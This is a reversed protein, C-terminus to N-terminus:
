EGQKVAHAILVDLPIIELAKKHTSALKVPPAIGADYAEKWRGACLCWQDGPKLGPFGYRPFPTKLDNGCSASYNLFDETMIACVVHVGRDEPGTECSGTRYFGTIPDMCCPELATGLVNKPPSLTDKHM